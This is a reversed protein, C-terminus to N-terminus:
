RFSSSSPMRRRETSPCGSSSRGRKRSSSPTERHPQAPGAAARGPDGMLHHPVDDTAHCILEIGKGHARPALSDGLEGILQHPDFRISELVLKGAEIRSIDLIDNIIGLLSESSRRIIESYRRQSTTLSTELLLDIMGLIGNMPTRIEHSMNALFQSKARNAHEASVKAAHLRSLADQLEVTRRGVERDREQVQDLINNFGDFLYGLEDDGQKVSRVSYDKRELVTNMTGALSEIPRSFLRAMYRSLLFALLSAAILIGVMATAFWSILELFKDSSAQIVITSLVMGEVRVDEVISLPRGLLLPKASEFRLSALLDPDAWKPDDAEEIVLPVTRRGHEESRSYRALIRMNSDVVYVSLIDERTRLASLSEQVAPMDEFMVAAITANGIVEAISSLDKRVARQSSIAELATIALFVGLLVAAFSLMFAASLKNKIKAKRFFHRM